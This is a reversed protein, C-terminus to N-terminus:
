CFALGVPVLHLVTFYGDGRLMADLLVLDGTLQCHKVAYFVVTKEEDDSVELDPEEELLSLLDETQLHENKLGELLKHGYKERLTENDM